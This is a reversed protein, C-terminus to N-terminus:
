ARAGLRTVALYQTSVLNGCITSLGSKHIEPETPILVVVIAMESAPTFTSDADYVYVSLFHSM